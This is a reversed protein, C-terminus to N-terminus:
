RSIIKKLQQLFAPNFSLSSSNKKYEKNEKIEKEKIKTEEKRVEQRLYKLASAVSKLSSYTSKLKNIFGSLIDSHRDKLSGKIVHGSEGIIKEPKDKSKIKLDLHYEEADDHMWGDVMGAGTYVQYFSVELYESPSKPNTIKMITPDKESGASVRWSKDHEYYSGDKLESSIHIDEINLKTM